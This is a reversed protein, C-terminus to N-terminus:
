RHRVGIRVVLLQDVGLLDRVHRFRLRHGASYHGEALLHAFESSAQGFAVVFTLDYL